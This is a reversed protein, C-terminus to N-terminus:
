LLANEVIQQAENALSDLHYERELFAVDVLMEKPALKGSFSSIARKRKLEGILSNASVTGSM